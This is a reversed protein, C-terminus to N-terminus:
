MDKLTLRQFATVLRAEDIELMAPFVAYTILTVAEPLPAAFKVDLRTHGDKVPRIPKGGGCGHQCVDFVYLCYGQKYDIYLIDNGIDEQLRNGFLTMYASMYNDSPYDPTLPRGPMSKGDVYFGISNLNYHQFNFPNRKYNGMFAESAVLGVVLMSPVANQYVDELTASYQGKAVAYARMDTNDYLYKAPGSALATNHAVMVPPALEITCVKLVAETIDLKYDANPNSSMFRFANNSPWFKLNIPVGSLIYRDQLCIGAYIPGEMEFMQSSDTPTAREILGANTGELPDPDDTNPGSDKVYLQSRLQTNKADYGYKLLVDLYAKYPYKTGINPSLLQNQLTVDVQRWLSQLFLNIPGVKSGAAESTMKPVPQGNGQLIRCRLKLRTNKLDVYSFGNGSVNFELAGETNLQSTPRYEVYTTSKITDDFTPRSFLSVSDSHSAM